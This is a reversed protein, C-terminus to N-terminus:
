RTLELLRESLKYCVDAVEDCTQKYIKKDNYENRIQNMAEFVSAFYVPYHFRQKNLEDAVTINYDLPILIYKFEEYKTEEKLRDSLGKIHIASAIMLAQPIDTIYEKSKLFDFM